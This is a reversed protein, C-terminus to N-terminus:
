KSCTEDSFVTWKGDAEQKEWLAHFTRETRRTITQRLRFDGAPGSAIGNFKLRNARWGSSVMKIYLGDGTFAYREILKGHVRWLDASIKRGDREVVGSLWGDNLDEKVIWRLTGRPGNAIEVAWTGKFYDIGTQASVAAQFLCVSVAVISLLRTATYAKLYYSANRKIVM